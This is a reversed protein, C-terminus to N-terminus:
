NQPKPAVAQGTAADSPFVIDIKGDPKNQVVVFPYGCQGNKGFKLTQGPLLSGKLEGSRLQDRIATKNLSGAKEISQALM